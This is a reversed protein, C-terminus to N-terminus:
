EYRPNGDTIISKLNVTLLIKDGNLAITECMRSKYPRRRDNLTKYDRNQKQRYFPFVNNKNRSQYEYKQSPIEKNTYSRLCM